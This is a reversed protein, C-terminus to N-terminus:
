PFLRETAWPAGADARVYALRDHLRFPRDRWFEIRLPALRWGIWHPPRPVPGIGFKV